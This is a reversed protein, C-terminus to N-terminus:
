FSRLRDSFAGDREIHRNFAELAAWNKKLWKKRHQRRMADRPGTVLTRSLNLSKGRALIRM